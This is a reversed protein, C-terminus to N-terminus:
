RRGCGDAAAPPRQTGVSRPTGARRDVEVVARVPAAGESTVRRSRVVPGQPMTREYLIESM